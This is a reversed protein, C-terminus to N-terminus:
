DIRPRWNTAIDVNMHELTRRAVDLVGDVFESDTLVFDTDFDYTFQPWGRSVSIKQERDGDVVVIKEDDFDDDSLGMGLGVVGALQLRRSGEGVLGRLILSLRRKIMSGDDISLQLRASKVNETTFRTRDVSQTTQILEVSKIGVEDRSLYDSWALADTTERVIRLKIGATRLESNLRRLVFSTWHSRTRVEAIILGKTGYPPILLLVRLDSLVADSPSVPRTPEFPNISDVNLLERSEGYPGGKVTLLVGWADAKVGSVRTYVGRDDNREGSAMAAKAATTVADRLGGPDPETFAVEAMKNPPTAILEMVRYGYKAM